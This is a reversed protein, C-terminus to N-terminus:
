CLQLPCSFQQNLSSKCIQLSILCHPLQSVSSTDRICETVGRLYESTTNHVDLSLYRFGDLFGNTKWNNERM